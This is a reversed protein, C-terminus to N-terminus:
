EDRKRRAYTNRRSGGVQHEGANNINIIRYLRRTSTHLENIIDSVRDGKVYANLIADDTATVVGHSVRYGRLEVPRMGTHRQVYQDIAQRTVGRRRAIAVISEGSMVAAVIPDDSM